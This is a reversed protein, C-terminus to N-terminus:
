ESVTWIACLREMQADFAAWLAQAEAEPVLRMARQFAGDELISGMQDKWPPLTAARLREITATMRARAFSAQADEPQRDTDFLGLQGSFTGM